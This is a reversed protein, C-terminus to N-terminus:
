PPPAPAAAVRDRSSGRTLPTGLVFPASHRSDIPCSSRRARSRTPCGASPRAPSPGSRRPRPRHGGVGLGRQRRVAQDHRAHPRVRRAHGPQDPDAAGLQDGVPDRGASRQQGDADPVLHQELGADLVALTASPQPTQGPTTSCTCASRSGCMPQFVTTAASRAAPQEGADGVLPEVEHVRVRDALQGVAIGPLTVQASCPPSRNTAATSSPAPRTSGTGGPSTRRRRRGASRWSPRWTRVQQASHGSIAVVRRSSRM